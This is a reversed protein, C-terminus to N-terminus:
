NQNERKGKRPPSHSVQMTLFLTPVYIFRVRVSCFREKLSRSYFGECSTHAYLSINLGDDGQYLFVVSEVHNDISSLVETVIRRPTYTLLSYDLFNDKINM